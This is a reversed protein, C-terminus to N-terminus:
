GTISHLDALLADHKFGQPARGKEDLWDPSLVAYAEDCYRSFFEWSMSLTQGWTVCTLSKASYNIIPVCHGGWSGPAADPGTAVDWRKQRQASKPLAIGTYIGGFLYIAAKVLDARQTDVKAFAEVTDARMYQMSIHFDGHRWANLVDLLYAGDDKAGTAPDFGTVKSYWGIVDADEIGDGKLSKVNASWCQILHAAGACTCDGLRDNAFMPWAHVKGSWSKSAPVKPLAAPTLYTALRLTRPDEVVGLHKGLRHQEPDFVVDSM